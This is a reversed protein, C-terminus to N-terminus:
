DLLNKHAAFLAVLIATLYIGAFHLAAEPRIIIGLVMLATMVGVFARFAGWSKTLIPAHDLVNPVLDLGLNARAVDNVQEPAKSVDTMNRVEHALEM